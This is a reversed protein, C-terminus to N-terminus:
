PPTISETFAKVKGRKSIDILDRIDDLAKLCNLVYSSNKNYKNKVEGFNILSSYITYTGFTLGSIVGLTAFLYKCPDLFTDELNDSIIYFGSISTASGLLLSTIAFGLNVNPHFTEFYSSSLASSRRSYIKDFFNGSAKMIVYSGFIFTPLVSFISIMSLLAQNHTLLSYGKYALVMDFSASAIPLILSSYEFIKKHLREQPSYVTIGELNDQQFDSSLYSYIEASTRYSKLSLSTPGIGKKKCQKLFYIKSLSVLEKGQNKITVEEENGNNPKCNISSFLKYFGLTRPISDYIFSIIAFEKIDNYKYSKYVDPASSLAGLTLSLLGIGIDKIFSSKSNYQNQRSKKILKDTDDILEWIIWSTIGEVTLITAGMLFYGLLSSGYYDGVKSAIAIQPISPGFGLILSTICKFALFKSVKEEYDSQFALMYSNSFSFSNNFINEEAEENENSKSSDRLLKVNHSTQSDFETSISPSNDSKEDIALRQYPLIKLPNEVGLEISAGQLLFISMTELFFIFGLFLKYKKFRM